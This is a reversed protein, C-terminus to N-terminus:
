KPSQGSLNMKPPAISGGSILTKLGQEVSMRSPIVDGKPVFLAWGSTPNPTTPIFLSYFETGDKGVTEGTVFGLTWVGRRPYEIFVVKEFGSQSFSFAGLIQKTTQYITRVLPIYNLWKEFLGFLTRGIINTAFLGLLYIALISIILGLGPIHFGILPELFPNVIKDFFTIFLRVVYVTIAIPILVLVGALFKNRIAAKLKRWFKRM